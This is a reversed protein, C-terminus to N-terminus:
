AACYRRAKEYLDQRVQNALVEALGIEEPTWECNEGIKQWEDGPIRQAMINYIQALIKESRFFCEVAQDQQEGAMQPQLPVLGRKIAEDVFEALSMDGYSALLDSFLITGQQMGRNHRKNM